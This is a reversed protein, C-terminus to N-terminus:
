DVKHYSKNYHNRTAINIVVEVPSFNEFVAKDDIYIDAFVKRTDGGYLEQVEDINRNVADFHLGLKECFVVAKWLRENDRCTWLVLKAGQQKWIKAQEILPENPEGIEPFQDKVLTGDFDIAIIYPLNSM